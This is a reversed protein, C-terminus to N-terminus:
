DIQLKNVIEPHWININIVEFGELDNINKRFQSTKPDVVFLLNIVPVYLMKEIPKIQRHNLVPYRMEIHLMRFPESPYFSWYNEQIITGLTKPLHTEDVLKQFLLM